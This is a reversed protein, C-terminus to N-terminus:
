PAQLRTVDRPLHRQTLLMLVIISLVIMMMVALSIDIGPKGDKRRKAFAGKVKAATDDAVAQAAYWIESLWERLYCVSTVSRSV